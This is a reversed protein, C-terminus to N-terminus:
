SHIGLRERPLDDLSRQVSASRKRRARIPAFDDRTGSLRRGLRAIVVVALVNVVAVAVAAYIM